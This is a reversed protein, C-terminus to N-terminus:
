TKEGELRDISCSQVVAELSCNDFVQQAEVGLATLIEDDTAGEAVRIEVAAPMVVVARVIIMKRGDVVVADSM